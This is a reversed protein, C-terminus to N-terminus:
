RPTGASRATVIDIQGLRRFLFCLLIAAILVAGGMGLNITVFVLPTLDLVYGVGGLLCCLGNVLFAIRIATELRSGTFVPAVFLSSLGLFVTWGLMNTASIASIPNAQVVQELGNLEGRLLSLRVTSLQVFYHLGTLAAFAVGFCVAIQVLVRKEPPAYDFLSNLLVVFLPGFALMTLRALQQFVQSRQGAYTVFDALNTWMFLPPTLAIAVFCVTFVVFAVAILFASWFGLRVSLPNPSTAHTGQTM